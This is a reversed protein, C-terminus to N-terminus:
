RESERERERERHTSISAVSRCLLSVSFVRSGGSEFCAVELGFTVLGNGNGDSLVIM